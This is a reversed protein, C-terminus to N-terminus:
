SRSSCRHHDLFTVPFVAFLRFLQISPVYWRKIKTTYKSVGLMKKTARKIRSKKPTEESM